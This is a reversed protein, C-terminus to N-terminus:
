IERTELHFLYDCVCTSLCIATCMRYTLILSKVTFLPVYIKHVTYFAIILLMLNINLIILQNRLFIKLPRKRYVYAGENELV